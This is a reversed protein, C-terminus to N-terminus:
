GSTSKNKGDKCLQKYSKRIREIAFCYFCTVKMEAMNPCVYEYIDFNLFLSKPPEMDVFIMLIEITNNLKSARRVGDGAFDWATASANTEVATLGALRRM